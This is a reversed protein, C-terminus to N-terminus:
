TSRTNVLEAALAPLADLSGKSLRFDFIITRGEVYGLDRMGQRFAALTGATESGAPSLIWVRAGKGGAATRAGLVVM